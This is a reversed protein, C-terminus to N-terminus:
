PAPEAQAQIATPIEAGAGTGAGTEAKLWTLGLEEATHAVLRRLLVSEPGSELVEVLAAQAAAVLPRAGCAARLDLSRRLLSIGAERDQELIYFGQHRVVYSELLLDREDLAATLARRFSAQATEADGRLNEVTAGHWFMAWGPAVRLALRAFESVPDPGVADEGTKFLQRWYELQATLFAAAGPREAAIVGIASLAEDVPDLSWLHRDVLIEAQLVAGKISAPLLRLAANWDGARQLRRAPAISPDSLYPADSNV